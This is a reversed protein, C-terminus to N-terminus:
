RGQEHEDTEELVDCPLCFSRYDKDSIETIPEAAIHKRQVNSGQTGKAAEKGTAGGLADERYEKESVAMGGGALDIAIAHLM